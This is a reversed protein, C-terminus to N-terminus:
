LNFYRAFRIVDRLCKADLKKRINKRHVEVTLVSLFLIDSIQRTTCGKAVLSLIEKERRTLSSFRAFLVTDPLEVDLAMNIRNLLYNDHTAPTGMYICCSQSGELLKGSLYYHAWPNNSHPRVKQYFGITKSEDKQQILNGFTKAVWLMEPLHFFTSGFYDLGMNYLDEKERKLFNCGVRNMYVNRNAAVNNILIVGPLLDSISRIENIDSQFHRDLMYLQSQVVFAREAFSYKKM